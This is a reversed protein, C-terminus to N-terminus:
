AGIRGKITIAQGEGKIIIVQVWSLRNQKIEMGATSVRSAGFLILPSVEFLFMSSQVNFPIKM